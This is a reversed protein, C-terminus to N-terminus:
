SIEVNKGYKRILHDRVEQENKAEFFGIISLDGVYYKIVYKTM